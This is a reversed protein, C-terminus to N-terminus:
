CNGIKRHSKTFQGRNKWKFTYVFKLRIYILHITSVLQTSCLQLPTAFTHNQVRTMLNQSIRNSLLANEISSRVISEVEKFHQLCSNSPVTLRGFPSELREEAKYHCFIKICDLDGKSDLLEERCIECAHSKLFKRCTWGVIYVLGNVETLSLDDTFSDETDSDDFNPAPFNNECALTVDSFLSEDIECNSNNFLPVQLFNNNVISKLARSFSYATPHDCNGGRLRLKGFLNELCDQNLRRTLLYKVEYCQLDQWLAQLSALNILWGDVCYIQVHPPTCIELSKIYKTIERIFGMHCSDSHIGGFVNKFHYKRISNFCDFLKDVQQVFEATHVAEQPLLHTISHTYIGAAVTGSMVQTALSVQMKSFGDECMYRKTLKPALRIKQGHDITFFKQIYEWSIVKGGIKIDYKLLTNRLSKLLHPSDYFFHVREGNIEFSPNEPTMGLTNFLSRHVGKQDCVTFVVKMGMEQVNKIAAEYLEKLKSTIIGGAYFFYGLVM